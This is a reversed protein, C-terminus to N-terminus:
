LSRRAGHPAHALVGALPTTLPQPLSLRPCILSCPPPNVHTALGRVLRCESRGPSSAHMRAHVRAHVQHLHFPSGELRAPFFGTCDVSMQVAPKKSSMHRMARVCDDLLERLEFPTKPLVLKNARLKTFEEAWSSPDFAPGCPDISHAVIEM